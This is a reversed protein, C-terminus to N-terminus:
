QSAATARTWRASQWAGRDLTRLIRAGSREGRQAQVPDGDPVVWDIAAYLGGLGDPALEDPVLLLDPTNAPDSGASAFTELIYQEAQGASVGQAPDLWLVLMVDDDPLFARAYATVVERWAVSDWRPHHFFARARRGDLPLPDVDPRFPDVDAAERLPVRTALERIRAAALVASREWTQELMCQRAREGVARASAPDAVVLRMLAALSARDPEAWWYGVSASPLGGGTNLIPVERAAILYANDPNCFDLCAGYSTVIVPLGSSMAEAIPMGFGEGRYPHVLADCARYLDAMQEDTIQTDFYEIEPANPQRAAADLAETVSSGAYFSGTGMAKIVLCVDDAATFTALYTEILIDIGKRLITGGVFLFKFRKHTKLPYGAGHPCYVDTRVGLPIVKIKEAAIGSRIYSERVWTTYAWIEDVQDRMPAIWDSPLGGFEWPQVMVWVGQYPPEFNPPWQHRIHVDPPRVLPRGVREAIAAFRPDEAPDFQDAEYPLVTLAVQNTDLLALAFERNVHALSHYVFQSGELTVSPFETTGTPPADEALIQLALPTSKRGAIFLDNWGTPEVGHAVIELGLDEFIRALLPMPYPRVHTHDLWFGGHRVTDNEWNPTRVILLGNPGLLSCCVELFSVMLEGPMHELVHGAHIGDFTEHLQSLARADAVRASLGREHCLQVMQPDFDIGLGVIGRERLLDLFTGPGCGVDLVRQCGRFADAYPAM